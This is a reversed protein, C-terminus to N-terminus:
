QAGKTWDIRVLLYLLSYCEAKAWGIRALGFVVGREDLRYQSDDIFPTSKHKWFATRTLRDKGDQKYSEDVRTGTWLVPATGAEGLRDQRFLYFRSFHLFKARTLSGIKAKVAIADSM